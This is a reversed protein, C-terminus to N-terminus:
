WNRIHKSFFQRFRKTGQAMLKEFPHLYVQTSLIDVHGMYTSLHPLRANVDLGQEYWQLLRHVAFTHRLDHLRPSISQRKNIGAATLAKRFTRYASNHSLVNGRTNLFMPTDPESVDARHIYSELLEAMSVSIIVYREKRFKGCRIHLLREAALYDAHRLALAEGIRIGTTYLLSFLTCYLGEVSEERPSFSCAQQLQLIEETTFIYPPRSTERTTVRREPLVYSQEQELQLFATFQRILGYRNSFGRPALHSITALYDDVIAATLFTEQYGTDVLHQDLYSLLRAQGFYTSGSQQKLSVLRSMVPALISHFVVDNM